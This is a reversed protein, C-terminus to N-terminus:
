FEFFTTRDSKYINAVEKFIKPSSHLPAKKNEMISIMISMQMGIGNINRYIDVIQIGQNIAMQRLDRSVREEIEKRKKKNEIVQLCAEILIATEYKNWPIRIM